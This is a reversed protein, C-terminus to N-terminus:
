FTATFRKQQQLISSDLCADSDGMPQLNHHASSSIAVLLCNLSSIKLQTIFQLRKIGSLDFVELQDMEPLLGFGLLLVQKEVTMQEVVEQLLEEEHKWRRTVIVTPSM